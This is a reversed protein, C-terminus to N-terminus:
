GGSLEQLSREAAARIVLEMDCWALAVQECLGTWLGPRREFILLGDRAARFRLLGSARRLDVLDVRETGLCAVMDALLDRPDYGDDAVYGFDWDSAAHAEGRARSGFLVLVRLEAAAAAASAIEGPVPASRTTMFSCYAM